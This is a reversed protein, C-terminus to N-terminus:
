ADCNEVRRVSTRRGDRVHWVTGRWLNIGLAHHPNSTVIRFRKGRTDTGTVHYTDGLKHTWEM